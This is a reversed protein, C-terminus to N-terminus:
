NNVQLIKSTITDLLRMWLYLFEITKGEKVMGVCPNCLVSTCIGACFWIYTLHLYKGESFVNAEWYWQCAVNLFEVLGNFATLYSFRLKPDEYKQFHLSYQFMERHCLYSFFILYLPNFRQTYICLCVSLSFVLCRQNWLNTFALACSEKKKKKSMCCIRHIRNYDVHICWMTKRLQSNLPSLSLIIWLYCSLHYLLQALLIHNM